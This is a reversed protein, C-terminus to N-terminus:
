GVKFALFLVTFSLNLNSFSIFCNFGLINAWTTMWAFSSESESKIGLSATIRVPVLSRTTIAKPSPRNLDTLTFVPRNSVCKASISEPIFAPSVTTVDACNRKSESDLLDDSKLRICWWSSSVLRAVSEATSEAFFEAVTLPTILETIVLWRMSLMLRSAISFHPRAGAVRSKKTLSDISKDVNLEPM